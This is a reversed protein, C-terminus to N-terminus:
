KSITHILTRYDMKMKKWWGGGGKKKTQLLIAPNGDNSNSVSIKIDEFRVFASTVASCIEKDIGNRFIVAITLM